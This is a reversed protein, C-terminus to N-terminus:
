NKRIIKGAESVAYPLIIHELKHIKKTLSEVNDNSEIPLAGQIILKGSDVEPM